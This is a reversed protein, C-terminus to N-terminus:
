KKKKLGELISDIIELLEDGTMLMTHLAVEEGEYETMIKLRFPKNRYTTREVVFRTVTKSFMKAFTERMVTEPKKPDDRGM